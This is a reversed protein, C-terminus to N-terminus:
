SCSGPKPSSSCNSPNRSGRPPVSAICTGRKQALAPEEAPNRPRGFRLRRRGGQGLDAACGGRSFRARPLPDHRRRRTGQGAGRQEERAHRGHCLGTAKASRWNFRLQGVGGAGAHVLCTHKAGLPFASHTLYHATSGQLMLATAIPMPMDPPVRVLKGEPVVAYEGYSGRSLCYAIRDGVAVATADAGLAAVTGGGEMGLTMPLPTRYTQSRNYSGNRMYVDIYNVGAVELKVLVEGKGPSPM